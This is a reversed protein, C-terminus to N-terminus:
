RPSPISRTRRTRGKGTSPWRTRAGPSRMGISRRTPTINVRGTNHWDFERKVEDWV